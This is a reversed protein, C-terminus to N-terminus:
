TSSKASSISARCAGPKWRKPHFNTPTSAASPSKRKRMAKPAPRAHAGMGSENWIQAFRRPLPPLPLISIAEGPKWYSSIQLIAPGSLGRHTFLIKEHFATEHLSVNADLSVGSLAAAMPRRAASGTGSSTRHGAIWITERHRSWLRDRRHTSHVLRRDCHGAVRLDAPRHQNGAPLPREKTDVDRQLEAPNRREAKEANRGCCRWSRTPHGMASCSDSSRKTIDSATGNSSRLSTRRSIARWRRNTFTSIGPSSTRRRPTSTPSTADGAAPSASRRGSLMTANSFRARITGTEGGRDRM